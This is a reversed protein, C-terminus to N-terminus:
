EDVFNCAYYKKKFSIIMEELQDVAFQFLGNTDEVERAILAMANIACVAPEMDAYAKARKASLADVDGKTKAPLKKKAAM